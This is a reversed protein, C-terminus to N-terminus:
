GATLALTAITTSLPLLAAFGILLKLWIVCFVAVGLLESHSVAVPGDDRLVRANEHRSVAPITTPM